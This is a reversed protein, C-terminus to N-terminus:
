TKWIGVTDQQTKTHKNVIQETKNKIRNIDQIYMQSALVSVCQKVQSIFCIRIWIERKKLTKDEAGPKSSTWVSSLTMWELLTLEM